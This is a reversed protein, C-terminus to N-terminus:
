NLLVNPKKLEIEQLIEEMKTRFLVKGKEKIEKTKVRTPAFPSCGHSHELEDALRSDNSVKELVCKGSPLPSHFITDFIKIKPWPEPHGKLTKANQPM